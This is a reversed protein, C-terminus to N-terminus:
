EVANERVVDIIWSGIVYIQKADKMHRMEYERIFHNYMSRRSMHLIHAAESLEYLYDPHIFIGTPHREPEAM